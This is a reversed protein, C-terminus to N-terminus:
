KPIQKQMQEIQDAQANHRRQCEECIWEGGLSGHEPVRMFYYCRAEKECRSCLGYSMYKIYQQVM